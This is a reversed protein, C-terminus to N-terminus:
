RASSYDKLNYDIEKSPMPIKQKHIIEFGSKKPSEKSSFTVYINFIAHNKSSRLIPLVNHELMIWHLADYSNFTPASVVM